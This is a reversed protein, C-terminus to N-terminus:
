LAPSPIPSRGPRRSAPRGRKGLAGPYSRLLLVQPSLTPSLSAAAHRRVANRSRRNLDLRGPGAVSLPKTVSQERPLPAGPAGSPPVGRGPDRRVGPRLAVRTGSPSSPRQRACAVFRAYEVRAVFLMAPALERARRDGHKQRRLRHPVRVLRKIYFGYLLPLISARLLVMLVAM